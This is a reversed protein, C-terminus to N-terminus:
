IGSNPAGSLQCEYSVREWIQKINKRLQFDLFLLNTQKMQEGNLYIDSDTLQRKEAPSPLLQINQEPSNPYQKLLQLEEFISLGNTVAEAPISGTQAAQLVSALTLRGQNDGNLTHLCKYLERLTQESPSQRVICEEMWEVDKPQYILHIYTPELDKFAPQCRDFFTIQQPTPHCFVLHRIYPLDVLTCSSAIAFLEGHALKDTVQTKDADSMDAECRGIRETTSLLEFLQDLARDDRVYLLTPEERKLLKSLYDQKSELARRDIFKAPSEDEETPFMTAVTNRDLTHIHLDEIKLQVTRSNNWENIEPEFALDLRINKNRLAILHDSMNWGLAALTQGGDTVFLKLHNGDKGIISPPKSLRLNHMALRPPVNEEGFPELQQLEEIAPLTLYSSQVELDVRLKPILDEDTLHECAYENFRLAFEEINKTKVTLGAARAHGGHKMLLEDCANLSDALNMGEICRGSGHAEDGEVALVFVPRYYRNLIRSAVIGVVGRHWGEDAVVLGNKQNHDNNKEITAIAEDRIRNEVERRELNSADLEEALPIAEEYSEATLLKVVQDATNMRGAANIRPGLVFSLTYGVIPKNDHYNAVDCLAKIGPRERKNIEALGLSTLVRNEGTLPAIDVVTGLTVLDLQSQLFPDLDGGGMVAHALKFALGVGALGDFPYESEPMKPTIIGTAPPLADPRPQHHDTIIVDIGLNNAFEVEDISTIGCDVTILLDCGSRKLTQIAKKNLGYGEGFRDPIYPSVPFDLHQFTNILLSAATTGDADYDGFIWVQEGHKMALRIREVVQEMGHLLFPSHLQDPTPYLYAHAADETEIGRNVLLHAMLPSIGLRVALRSSKEIDPIASEWIKRQGEKM